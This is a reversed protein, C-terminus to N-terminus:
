KDSGVLVQHLRTICMVCNKFVHACNSYCPHACTMSHTPMPPCLDSSVTMTQTHTCNRLFINPEPLWVDGGRWREREERGCIILPDDGRKMSLNLFFYSMARPWYGMSFIKMWVNVISVEDAQKCLVSGRGLHWGRM